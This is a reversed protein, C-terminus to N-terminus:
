LFIELVDYPFLVQVIATAAATETIAVRLWLEKEKQRWRGTPMALLLYQWKDVNEKRLRDYFYAKSYMQAKEAKTDVHKLVM